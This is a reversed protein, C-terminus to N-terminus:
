LACALAQIPRLSAQLLCDSVKECSPANLCSGLDSWYSAINTRHGEVYQKCDVSCRSAFANCANSFALEDPLPPVQKEVEDGCDVSCPARGECDISVAVAEPRALRAACDWSRLCVERARDALEPYLHECAVKHRVDIDCASTAQPSAATGGGMACATLGAIAATMDM